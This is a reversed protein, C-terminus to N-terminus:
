RGGVAEIVTSTPVATPVFVNESMSVGSARDRVINSGVGKVVNDRCCGFEATAPFAIGRGGHTINGIVISAAAGCAISYGAAGTITNGNVVAREIAKGLVEIGAYFRDVCNSSIVFDSLRASKQTRSVFIGHAADATGAVRNGTITAAACDSLNIGIRRCDSVTNGSIATGEGPLVSGTAQISSIGDLCDRIVNGAVTGNGRGSIGIAAPVASGSPPLRRDLNTGRLRNNAILFDNATQVYIGAGYFYTQDDTRISGTIGEIDNNAIVVGNISGRPDSLYIMIGYCPHDRVVNGRIVNSTQSEGDAVTQCGIGTGCGSVCENGEVVNHASQGAILVDYGTESQRIPSDLRVARSTFRNERVVCQTAQHILVGGRRLEEFWCERVTCRAAKSVTVGWGDYLPSGGDGPTLRLGSVTCDDHLVALLTANSGVGHQVLHCGFGEGVLAQGSRRTALTRSLRYPQLAAPVMIHHGTDLATQFAATDDTIGDGKAGFDAVSVRTPSLPSPAQKTGSLTTASALLGLSTRRSIGDDNVISIEWSRPFQPM